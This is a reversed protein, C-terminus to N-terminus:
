RRSTMQISTGPGLGSHSKWRWFTDGFVSRSSLTQRGRAEASGQVRQRSLDQALVLQGNHGGIADPRLGALVVVPRWVPDLSCEARHASAALRRRIHHQSEHRFQREAPQLHRFKGKGEADGRAPITQERPPRAPQAPARVATQPTILPVTATATCPVGTGCAGLSRGLSPAIEANTAAYSALHPIGAQNQFVGSVFFGLPFRYSAFAKFQTQASFPTVVRCYTPTAPVRFDYVAQAPSDVVFCRDDVSRGTDLSVGYELGRDLRANLSVTFFDSTRSQGDGYHSPRRVAELGQGFKAPVVDYLGCVQYGGGGPM